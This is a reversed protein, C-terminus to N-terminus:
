AIRPRKESSGDFEGVIKTGDVLKSACLIFGEVLQAEQTMIPHTRQPLVQYERTFLQMMRVNEFGNSSRMAGQRAAMPQLYQGYIVVRGGPRLLKLGVDFAESALTVEDEGTVIIVGDVGNHLLDVLDNRRIEAKRKGNERKEQIKADDMAPREKAGDDTSGTAKPVVADDRTVQAAWDHSCPDSSELVDLPIIRATFRADGGM